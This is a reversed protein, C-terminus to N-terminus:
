SCSIIEKKLIKKATEFGISAVGPVGYTLTTWHGTLYLNKLSTVKSFGTVGFQSPLAAWGYAAGKYNLTWKNITIPTSNVIFKINGSLNPLANKAKAIFIDSLKGRKDDWYEKNEYPANVFLCVVEKRVFILCYVDNHCLQGKSILSYNGEVDYNPLYWVNVQSNKGDLPKNLGIYVSFASLSPAMTRVKNQIREGAAGDDILHLLTSRASANSVVYKARILGGNRLRISKVEKHEINIKDVLNALLLEGGLKKFKRALADSFAQLGGEPYYGGDVIFEKYLMLASFASVMSAPLGANGLVPLALIAKLKDDKFLEEMLEGLTKKALVSFLEAPSDKLMKFFNDINNVEEPFNDKLGQATKNLDSFFSIKYDPTIIIDSPDYRTIKVEEQLNLDRFIKAFNGDKRLGGLSHVCADFSFGKRTFSVCCGGVNHNKEVILTKLGEKALYCGCVLGSVGAGIVVVDYDIKPM